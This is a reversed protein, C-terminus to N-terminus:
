RWGWIIWHASHRHINFTEQPQPMEHTNCHNIVLCEGVFDDGADVDFEDDGLVADKLAHCCIMTPILCPKRSYPVICGGGEEKM